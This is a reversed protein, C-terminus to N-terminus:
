AAQAGKRTLLLNMPNAGGTRVVHGAVQVELVDPRGMRLWVAHRLAFRRATGQELFGQFLLAGNPGYARVSLWSRGKAATVLAFAPAVPATAPKAHALPAAPAASVPTQLPRPPSSGGGLRWAALGAVAAGVVLIGVLTRLVARRPARRSPLGVPVAPEEDRHAFRSDYEDIYLNGDLGLFEAYSRLFGKAYAEGPLLDWREEELATLYSARIHLGKQVDGASLGRTTRAERLSVGIEFM